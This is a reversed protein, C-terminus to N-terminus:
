AYSIKITDFMSKLKELDDIKGKKILKKKKKLEKKSLARIFFNKAIDLAYMKSSFFQGLVAIVLTIAGQFGGIDGLWELIDTSYRETTTQFQDLSM